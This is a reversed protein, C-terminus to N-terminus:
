IVAAVKMSKRKNHMDINSPTIAPSRFLEDDESDFAVGDSEDDASSGSDEINFEELLVGKAYSGQKAKYYLELRKMRRVEADTLTLDETRETKLRHSRRSKLPRGSSSENMVASATVTLARECDLLFEVTVGVKAPDTVPPDFSSLDIKFEGIKRNHADNECQESEGEYVVITCEEQSQTCPNRCHITECPKDCHCASCHPYGHVPHFRAAHAFPLFEGKRVMHFMSSKGGKTKVRLGLSCSIIDTVMMDCHGMMQQCLTSGFRAAGRAVAVLSAGFARDRRKPITPLRQHVMERIKPIFTTGTRLTPHQKNTTTTTTTRTNCYLHVCECM